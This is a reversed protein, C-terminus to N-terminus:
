CFFCPSKKVEVLWNPPEWGHDKMDLLHQALKAVDEEDLAGCAGEHQETFAISTNAERNFNATAAQQQRDDVELNSLIEKNRNECLWDNVLKM